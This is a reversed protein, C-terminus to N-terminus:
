RLIVVRGKGPAQQPQSQQQALHEVDPWVLTMTEMARTLPSSLWLVSGLHGWRELLKQVAERAAGCQLNSLLPWTL